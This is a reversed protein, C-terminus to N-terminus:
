TALDGHITSFSGGFSSAGYGNTILDKAVGKEKRSLDNLYVYQYTNHRSYNIHDFTFILKLIDQEASFYRKLDAERVASFAAVIM